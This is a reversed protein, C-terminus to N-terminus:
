TDSDNSAHAKKRHRLLFGLILFIVPLGFAIPLALMPWLDATFHIALMQDLVLRYSFAALLISVPLILKKSDKIGFLKASAHASGYICIMIQILASTSFFAIMIMEYRHIFHGIHASRAMQMCSVIYESTVQASLVGTELLPWMVVFLGSMGIGVVGSRNWVKRNKVNPLILAAMMTAMAWDTNHQRSAWLTRPLGSDLVPLLNGIDFEELSGLLLLINLSMIAFLGVFAMRAMVELGKFCGYGGVFFGILIFIITPTDPLFYDRLHYVFTVMVPGIALFFFILFCIAVLKGGWRGLLSSGYSILCDGPRQLARSLIYIVVMGQLTAFLTAIWIDSGVERSMIGQSVGIAKAYVMNVIIAVYMGNTIQQKM